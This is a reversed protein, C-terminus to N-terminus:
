QITTDQWIALLRNAAEELTGIKESVIRNVARLIKAAKVQHEMESCEHAALLTLIPIAEQPQGEQLLLEASNLLISVASPWSQAGVALRLAESLHRRAMEARRDLSYVKGLNNLCIIAANTDGMTQAIELGQSFFQEALDYQDQSVAIEGRNSLAIAQGARDGMERCAALSQEYLRDAEVLKNQYHYVTGLNNLHIAYHFRDGLEQSVMLCNQFIRQAEEHNGMYCALDGLANLLVLHLRQNRLWEAIHLGEIFYHRTQDINGLRHELLGLLYYARAADASLQIDEVLALVQFSYQRMMETQGQARAVLAMQLLCFREEDAYGLATFTANAEDLCSKADNIRGLRYLFVGLRSQLKASAIRLENHDQWREYALSFLAVAEQFRGLTAFFEYLGNIYVYALDAVPHEVLTYWAAYINELEFLFEQLVTQQNGGQLKRNQEDLWVGVYQLHTEQTHRKVDLDLDLKESAFQRILEHLEFREVGTKRVLSKNVLEELQDEAIGAIQQAFTTSFGGRFVSLKSLNTQQVTSLRSWSTILAAWVSSHRTPANRLPSHLNTSSKKLDSVIEQLSRIGVWAASLEIALPLGDVLRCIETVLNANDNLNFGANAQQARLVFLQVSSYGDVQNSIFQAPPVELCALPYVWEEQLWLRERSTVLFLLGPERALLEGLDDLEDVLQDLNDLVILMERGRLFEHVQERLSRNQFVPIRFAEVLSPLIGATPEVNVLSVYVVGDAFFGLHAHALELALRSKGLGGQGCITILHNEPNAIWEVLEHFEGERGILQGPLNPLSQELSTCNSNKDNNKLCDDDRISEFLQVSQRAPDVGLEDKLIGRCREYQALAASRQGNKALLSMLLVHSEERWRDHDVQRWAYEIALPLDGRRQTVDILNCFADFTLRHLSERMLLAWDNFYNSDVIQFQALFNGKYLNVMRKYRSHCPFCAENRRHNHRKCKNHLLRFETIDLWYDSDPNFRATQRDVVMFPQSGDHHPLIKRLHTFAQRLSQLANEQPQEPWLYGALAERRHTRDSEVVLYIFLALAKDTPFAVPEGNLRIDINGFLSIELSSM